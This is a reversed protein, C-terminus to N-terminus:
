RKDETWSDFWLGEKSHTKPDRCHARAEKLTLGRKILRKPSSFFLREIKYTKKRAKKRKRM